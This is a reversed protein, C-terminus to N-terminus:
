CSRLLFISQICLYHRQIARYNLFGQIFHIIIKIWIARGKLIHDSFSTIRIAKFEYKTYIELINFTQYYLVRRTLPFYTAGNYVM